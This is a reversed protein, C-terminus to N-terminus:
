DVRSLEMLGSYAFSRREVPAYWPRMMRNAQDDLLDGTELGPIGERVKARLDDLVHSRVDIFDGSVLVALGDTNELTLATVTLPDLIGESIRMFFQGPMNLPATTSIDRSAWGIRLSEM